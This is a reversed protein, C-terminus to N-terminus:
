NIKDIQELLAGISPRDSPTSGVYSLRVNGRRDILFTSPFALHAAIGLQNVAALDEDLLVPFPFVDVNTPKRSAALFDPLQAKSGPYVLLVETERNRFKDYNAILRSTQTTCFPCITGNFGRTFVLLVNQKGQYSRLSVTGGESDVFSLSELTGDDDRNSSVHERFVVDESPDSSMSGETTLEGRSMPDQPIAATLPVTSVDAAPPNVNSDCGMAFLSTIMSAIVMPASVHALFQRLAPLYTIRM